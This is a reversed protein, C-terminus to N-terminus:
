EWRFGRRVKEIGRIELMYFCCRPPCNDGGAKMGCIHSVWTSGRRLQMSLRTYVVYRLVYVDGMVNIRYSVECVCVLWFGSM